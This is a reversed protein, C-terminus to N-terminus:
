RKVADGSITPTRIMHDTRRMEMRREVWIHEEQIPPAPQPVPESLAAVVALFLDIIFFM